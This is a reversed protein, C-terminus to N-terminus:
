GRFPYIFARHFYHLQWLAFLLLPVFSIVAVLYVGLLVSGWTASPNM